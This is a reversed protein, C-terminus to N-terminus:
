QDAVTSSPRKQTNQTLSVIPLAVYLRKETPDLCILRQKMLGSCMGGTKGALINYPLSLANKINKKSLLPVKRASRGMLGAERLRNRITRSTVPACLKNKLENASDFPNNKSYRILIRDFHSSTKRQRGRTEASKNTHIANFVKNKSCDM